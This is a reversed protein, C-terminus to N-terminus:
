LGYSDIMNLVLAPWTFRPAGKGAATESNYYEWFGQAAVMEATTRTIHRALDTWGYAAVARAVIWNTAAWVCPGRWLLRDEGFSTEGTQCIANFPVPVPGSFREMNLLAGEIIRWAKEQSVLGTMLPAVGTLCMRQSQRPAKLDYRPFFFGQEDDWMVAEMAAVMRQARVRCQAARQPIGAEDYLAAMSLLGAATLGNMGVDEFVFRNAWAIAELNWDLSACFDLLAPYKVLFELGVLPSNPHINMPADFVPATDTGSEWPHIISVLGDGFMDRPGLSYDVCRQMAPLLELVRRDRTRNYLIEAALLYSPPDIFRSRGMDDYQRRVVFITAVRVPDTEKLEPIRVEHPIHGDDCQVNFVTQLEQLATEPDLHSMAIVNWGSDWAFFSRYTAASPLHFVGIGADVRNTAFVGLSEAELYERLARAVPDEPLASDDSCFPLLSGAVAAMGLQLFSRRDM